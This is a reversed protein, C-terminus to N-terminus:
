EGSPQWIAALRTCALKPITRILAGDPPPHGVGFLKPLDMTVDPVKSTPTDHAAV